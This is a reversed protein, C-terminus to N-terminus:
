EVLQDGFGVPSFGVKGDDNIRGREVPTYGPLHVFASDRNNIVHARLEPRPALPADAQQPFINRFCQHNEGEFLLEVPVAANIRSKNAM